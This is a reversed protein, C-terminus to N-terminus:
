LTLRKLIPRGKKWLGKAKAELAIIGSSTEEPTADELDELDMRIDRMGKIIETITGIHGRLAALPAELTEKAVEQIAEDHRNSSAYVLTINMMANIAHMVAESTQPAWLNPYPSLITDEMVRAIKGAPFIVLVTGNAREIEDQVVVVPLPQKFIDSGPKPLSPINSILLDRLVTMRLGKTLIPEIEEGLPMVPKAEETAPLPESFLTVPEPVYGYYSDPRGLIQALQLLVDNKPRMPGSSEKHHRRNLLIRVPNDSVDLLQGFTVATRGSEAAMWQYYDALFLKQQEWVPGKEFIRVQQKRM